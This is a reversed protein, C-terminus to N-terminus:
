LPVSATIGSIPSPLGPHAGDKGSVSGIMVSSPACGLKLCYQMYFSKRLLDSKESRFDKKM